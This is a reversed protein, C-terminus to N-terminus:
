NVRKEEYKGKIHEQFYKGISGVTLLGFHKAAPVDLYQWIEGSNFEIELIRAAKDYGISKAMKSDVPERKM